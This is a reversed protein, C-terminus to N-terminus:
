YKQILEEDKELIDRVAMMYRTAPGGDIIRHDYTLGIEMVHRPEITTYSDDAYRPVVNIRGIGLLATQPFNIIPTFFDADYMGISSVTFTGGSREEVTLNRNRVKEALDRLETTIEKCSKKDADKIVPVVLGAESDVACGINISKKYIIDGADEDLVTNIIRNEAMAKACAKIVIATYSLKVGNSKAENVKRVVNTMNVEMFNTLRATKQCSTIMAKAITARMSSMKERVDGEDDTFSNDSKNESANEKIFKDIETETIKVGPFRTEIEQLSINNEKLLKRLKPSIKGGGNDSKKIIQRNITFGEKVENKMEEAKAYAESWDEGEQIVICIPKNVPCTDGESYMHKVVIGEYSSYVNEVEKENEVECLVEDKSVKDGEKKVWRGIVGEIMELNMRPMLVIDAM